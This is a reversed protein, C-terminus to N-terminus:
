DQIGEAQVIDTERLLDIRWCPESKHSSAQWNNWYIRRPKWSITRSSDPRCRRLPVWIIGSKTPKKGPCQSHASKNSECCMWRHAKDSGVSHARKGSSLPRHLMAVLYDDLMFLCCSWILQVLTSRKLILTNNNYSSLMTPPCAAPRGLSFFSFYIAEWGIKSRGFGFSTACPWFLWFRFTLVSPTILYSILVFCTRLYPRNLDTSIFYSILQM